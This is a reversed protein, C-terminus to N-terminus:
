LYFISRNIQKSIYKKSQAAISIGAYLLIFSPNAMKKRETEQERTFRNKESSEHVYVGVNSTYNTFITTDNMECRTDDVQLENM